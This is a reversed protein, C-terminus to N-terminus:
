KMADALRGLIWKEDLTFTTLHPEVRATYALALVAISGVLMSAFNSASSILLHIPLLIQMKRAPTAISLRHDSRSPAHQAALPAISQQKIYRVPPLILVFLSALVVERMPRSSSLQSFSM